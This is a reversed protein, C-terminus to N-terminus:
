NSAGGVKAAAGDTKMVGSGAILWGPNSEEGHFILNMLNFHESLAHDLVIFVRGNHIMCECKKEASYADVIEADFSIKRLFAGLRM